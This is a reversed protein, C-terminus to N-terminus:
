YLLAVAEDHTCNLIDVIDNSNIYIRLRQAPYHATVLYFQREMEYFRGIRNRRLHNREEPTLM